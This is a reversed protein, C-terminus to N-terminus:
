NFFLKTKWDTETPSEGAKIKNYIATLTQVLTDMRLDWEDSKSRQYVTNGNSLRKRQVSSKREYTSGSNYRILWSDQVNMSNQIQAVRHDNDEHRDGNEDIELHVAVLSDNINFFWVRDPRYRTDCNPPCDWIVAVAKEVIQHMLREIEAIVLIEVRMQLQPPVMDPNSARFCSTCLGKIM